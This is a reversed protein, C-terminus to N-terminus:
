SFERIVKGKKYLDGYKERNEFKDVVEGGYTVWVHDFSSGGDRSSFGVLKVENKDVGQRFLQQIISDAEGPCPNSGIGFRRMEEMYYYGAWKVESWDVLVNAPSFVTERIVETM